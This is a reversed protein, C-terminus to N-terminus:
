LGRVDSYDWDRIATVYIGDAARWPLYFIAYGAVALSVRLGVLEPDDTEEDPLGHAIPDRAIEVIEIVLARAVDEPLQALFQKAAPSLSM